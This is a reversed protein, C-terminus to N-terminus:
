ALVCPLASPVTLTFQVGVGDLEAEYANYFPTERLNELQVLPSTNLAALFTKALTRMREVVENQAAADDGQGPRADGFYLTVPATGVRSNASAQSTTYDYLVIAPLACSNATLTVQERREHLFTGAGAILAAAQIYEAPSSM